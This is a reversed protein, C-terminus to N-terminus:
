KAGRQRLAAAVVARAAEDPSLDTLDPWPTLDIHHSGYRTAPGISARAKREEYQIEACPGCGLDDIVVVRLPVRLGHRKALVGLAWPLVDLREPVGDRLAPSSLDVMLRAPAFVVAGEDCVVRAPLPPNRKRAPLYLGSLSPDDADWVRAGEPVFPLCEVPVLLREDPRM